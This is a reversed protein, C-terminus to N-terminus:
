GSMLFFRARLVPRQYESVFGAESLIGSEMRCPAPHTARRFNWNRSFSFVHLDKARDILPTSTEVICLVGYEVRGSISSKQFLEAAAIAATACHQNLVVGRVMLVFVNPTPEFRMSVPKFHM